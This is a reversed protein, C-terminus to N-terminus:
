SRRRGNRATFPRLSFAVIYVSETKLMMGRLDGTASKIVGATHRFLQLDRPCKSHVVVGVM